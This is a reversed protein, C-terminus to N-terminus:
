KKKTGFWPIMFDRGESYSMGRITGDALYGSHFYTGSQDATTFSFYFKGWTTNIKGNTFPTGYFEGSLKGKDFSQIIFDKLYPTSEPSPRLDLEWTGIAASLLRQQVSDASEQLAVSTNSNQGTSLTTYFLMLAIIILANKMTKSKLKKNLQFQNIARNWRIM